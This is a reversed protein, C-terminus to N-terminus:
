ASRQRLTALQEDLLNLKDASLDSKRLAELSRLTRAATDPFDWALNSLALVAASFVLDDRTTELIALVRDASQTDKGRILLRMITIEVLDTNASGLNSRVAALIEPHAFEGYDLEYTAATRVESSASQLRALLDSTM